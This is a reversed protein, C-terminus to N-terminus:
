PAVGRRLLYEMVEGKRDIQIVSEIAWTTDRCSVRDAATVTETVSDKRVRMTASGGDQLAGGAIREKGTSERIDAWRTGVDSWGTSINGYADATSGSLRQIIARERFNGTRAM